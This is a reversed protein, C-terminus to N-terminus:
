DMEEILRHPRRRNRQPREVLQPTDQNSEPDVVDNDSIIFPHFTNDTDEDCLASSSTDHPEQSEQLNDPEVRHEPCPQLHDVHAQRVQGDVVVKYTLPGQKCSIVAQRWKQPANPRLDRLLM